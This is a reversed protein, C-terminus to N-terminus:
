LRWDGRILEQESTALSKITINFIEIESIGLEGSDQLIESLNEIIKFNDQTLKSADFRVVVGDIPNFHDSHIRKTM